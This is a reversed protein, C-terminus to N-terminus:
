RMAGVITTLLQVAEDGSIAMALTREFIDAYRALTEPREDYAGGRETETYVLDIDESEPFKLLTYANVMSPYAGVGFPVIHFDLAGTEIYDILQTIQDSMVRSGGILRHLVSEDVALTLRSRDIQGQLAMRLEVTRALQPVPWDPHAAQTVAWAYERTQIQGPIFALESTLIEEADSALAAFQSFWESLVDGYEEWWGRENAQEALTMLAAREPDVIGYVETLRYVNRPLIANKGGEIRSLAPQSIMIRKAVDAVTLGRDERYRRLVKGLYRRRGGPGPTM